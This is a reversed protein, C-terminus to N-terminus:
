PLKDNAEVGDFIEDVEDVQTTTVCNVCGIVHTDDNFTLPYLLNKIVHM